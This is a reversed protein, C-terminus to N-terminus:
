HCAISQQQKRFSVTRHPSLPSGLPNINSVVSYQLVKTSVLCLETSTSWTPVALKLLVSRIIKFSPDLKNLKKAADKKCVTKYKSTNQLKVSQFFIRQVKLNWGCIAIFLGLKQLAAKMLFWEINLGRDRSTEHTRCASQNGIASPAHKKLILYM